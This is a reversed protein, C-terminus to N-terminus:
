RVDGSVEAVRSGAQSGTYIPRRLRNILGSPLLSANQWQQFKFAASDAAPLRQELVIRGVDRATGSEGVPQLSIRFSARGESIMADVEEIDTLTRRPASAVSHEPEALVLFKRGAAEGGTPKFPLLSSFKADKSFFSPLSRISRQGIRGERSSILLLDDAGGAANPVRLAFGLPASRPPERKIGQSVRVFAGEVSQSPQWGFLHAADGSLELRAAYLAGNDHFVRAGSREALGRFTRELALDAFRAAGEAFGLAGSVIGAQAAPGVGGPGAAGLVVAVSGADALAGASQGETGNAVAGDFAGGLAAFGVTGALAVATTLLVTEVHAAGHESKRLM